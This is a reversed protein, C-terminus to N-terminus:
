PLACSAGLGGHEVMLCRDMVCPIGAAEARACAAADRVGVQLWILKPKLGVAEDVIPGAFESRRFVDVVDIQSVQAAATLSPYSPEGLVIAHKPNVPVVRYGAARLYLAVQHSPRAPDPSLGVIAITKTARLITRLADPTM